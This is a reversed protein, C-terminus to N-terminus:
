VAIFLQPIQELLYKAVHENYSDDWWGKEGPHEYDWEWNKRILCRRLNGKKNIWLIHKHSHEKVDYNVFGWAEGKLSNEEKGFIDETIIQKFVRQTLQRKGIMVNQVSVTTQKVVPTKIQIAEM